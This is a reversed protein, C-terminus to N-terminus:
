CLANVFFFNNQMEGSLQFYLYSPYSCSLQLCILLLKINWFM